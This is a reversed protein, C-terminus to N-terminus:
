CRQFDPLAAAGKDIFELHMDRNLGDGIFRSFEGSSDAPALRSFSDLDGRVIQQGSNGSQLLAIGNSNEVAAM